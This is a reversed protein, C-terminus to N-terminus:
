SGALWGARNFFITGSIDLYILPVSDTNLVHRNERKKKGERERGAERERETESVCM